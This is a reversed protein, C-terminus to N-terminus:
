ILFLGELSLPVNEQLSRKSVTKAKIFWHSSLYFQTFYAILLLIIKTNQGGSAHTLSLNALHPTESINATELLHEHM